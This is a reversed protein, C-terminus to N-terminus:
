THRWQQEKETDSSYHCKKFVNIEFFFKKLTQNYWKHYKQLAVKSKLLIKSIGHIFIIQIAMAYTNYLDYYWSISIQCKKRSRWLTMIKPMKRVQCTLRGNQIWSVNWASWDKYWNVSHKSLLINLYGKFSGQSGM